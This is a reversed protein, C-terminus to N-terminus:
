PCSRAPAPRVAARSRTNVLVVGGVALAGGALTTLAPIEGRLAWALLTATVPVLYLFNAARSAGLAGIAYTWTAYGVVGPLIGLFVVAAAPTPPLEPVRAIAAPLWPSLWLAGALLTWGTCALAGYKSVIPRQLVFYTATSVAAGIILSAGAGFRLGGPQGSAIFGIGALSVFTGIWARAPFREGLFVLAILATFLPGSNVIFSAAGASVTQQGSNLLINYLAIGIGGCAAFRVADRWEPLRPRKWSMWALVLLGAIAFRLAALEIPPLGDLAIRIAPFAAAWTLITTALAAILPMPFTPRM